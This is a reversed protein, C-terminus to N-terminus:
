KSVPRVPLGFRRYVYYSPSAVSSTFYLDYAEKIYTTWISSSWYYGESGGSGFSTSRVVGAAPFFVRKSTDSKDVFLIGAVGTYESLYTQSSSLWYIGGSPSSTSLSSIYQNSPNGTCANALALYEEHTPTRWTGGWNATAADHEADLTADTYSPEDGSAYGSSHDSKWGGFTVTNAGSITISTYRPSTEGWAYYDGYCTAPDGAVTTAGINMTAWKLGGIEVYEHSGAPAPNLIKDILLALDSTNLVGDHNMDGDLSTQASAQSFAMGLLLIALLFNKTM